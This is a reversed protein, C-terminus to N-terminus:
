RFANAGRIYYHASASSLGPPFSASSSINGSGRRSWGEPAKDYIQFVSVRLPSPGAGAAYWHCAPSRSQAKRAGPTEQDYRWTGELPYRAGRVEIAGTVSLDSWFTMEVQGTVEQLEERGEYGLLLRYDAAFRDFVEGRGGEEPFSFPPCYGIETSRADLCKEVRESIRRVIDEEDRTARVAKDAEWFAYAAEDLQVATLPDVREHLAGHAALAKDPDIFDAGGLPRVAEQGLTEGVLKWAGKVRDRALALDAESLSEKGSLAELEQLGPELARVAAEANRITAEMGAPSEGTAIGSKAEYIRKLYAVYPRTVRMFALHAALESERTAGAWQLKVEPIEEAPIGKINRCLQEGIVKATAARRAYPNPDPEPLSFVQQAPSEGPVGATLGFLLLSGLLSRCARM